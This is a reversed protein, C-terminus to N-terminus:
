KGQKPMLRIEIAPETGAKAPWAGIWYKRGDDLVIVGLYRPASKDRPRKNLYLLATNRPRQNPPPGGRAAPPTTSQASM